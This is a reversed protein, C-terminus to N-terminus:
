SVGGRGADDPTRSDEDVGSLDLFLEELGARGDTLSYLVVQNGAALEGVQEVTLGSVVVTQDRQAQVSGGAGTVFAALRDPKPTRATVYNTGGAGDIEQALLRGKHIMVIHDSVVELETLQHSSVLVCRGEEARERLWKRMWRIGLPDLGNTPEDLLLIPPDGLMAGALALRQRMGQSYRGTRRKAHKDLDVIELVERVRSGPVDAARALVELFSQGTQGPHAGLFELVAGVEHRPRELEAYRRGGVFAEGSTAAILGLVIRMTTTKGAGNVGVFGTVAGMPATFTVDHLVQRKGFTKTLRRCEVGAPRGTARPATAEV